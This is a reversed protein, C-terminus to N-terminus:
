SVSFHRQTLWECMDMGGGSSARGMLNCVQHALHMHRRETTALALSLRLRHCPIWSPSRTCTQRARRTRRSRTCSSLLSGIVVDNKTTLLFVVNSVCKNISKVQNCRTVQRSSSISQIMLKHILNHAARTEVHEFSRSRWVLSLVLFLQHACGRCKLSFYLLHLTTM